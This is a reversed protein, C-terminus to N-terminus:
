LGERIKALVIRYRWTSLVGGEFLIEIFDELSKEAEAQDGDAGRLLGFAIDDLKRIERLHDAELEACVHIAQQKASVADALAFSSRRYRSSASTKVIFSQDSTPQM